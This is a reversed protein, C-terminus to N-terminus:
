DKMSALVDLNGREDKREFKLLGFSGHIRRENSHPPLGQISVAEVRGIM